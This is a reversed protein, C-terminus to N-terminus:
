FLKRSLGMTYMLRELATDLELCLKTVEQPDYGLQVIQWDMLNRLEALKKMTLRKSSVNIM